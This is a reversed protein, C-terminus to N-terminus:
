FSWQVQTHYGTGQNDRLAVYNTKRWTFEFGVRLQKTIDWIVNAFATENRTIQSAALDRDIPDDMGGGWHTHLCPTIYHYIEGWAGRSRIARFTAANTNQLIAGNTFGLGQGVFAEGSMGWRDNIRWRADTGLAFKNAVVNPNLPIATRLQGGLVSAGIELTRKQELGEQALEGVAYSIRGELDPWGNDETIRLPPTGTILSSIPNQGVVGTPVPDTLAAQITWQSDDSPHLFRELRFQGVFNNGTNGSALMSGFTLMNPVLPNFVNFQLGAAFRWDENRLEGYAQIPLLGYRDVLLADNYFLFLVLGGARFGGVQPGAVLAGLSSSRAFIDLTNEPQEVGPLLLLPIGPALPRATNFMM